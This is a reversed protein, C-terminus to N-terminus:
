VDFRWWLGIVPWTRPTLQAGLKLRFTDWGFLLGAGAFLEEYTMSYTAEALFNARDGMNTEFGGTVSSGTLNGTIEDGVDASFDTYQGTVHFKTGPSLIKTASTFLPIGTIGGLDGFDVKYYGGGVALGINTETPEIVTFKGNFNPGLFMMFINTGVQANDTLGYNVPGLGVTFEGQNLTHATPASLGETLPRNEFSAQGVSVGTFLIVAGVVFSLLKKM